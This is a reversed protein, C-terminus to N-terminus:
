VLSVRSKVVPRAQPAAFIRKIAQEADKVAAATGDRLGRLAQEETLAGLRACRAIAAVYSTNPADVIAANARDLAYQAANRANEEPTKGEPMSPRGAGPANTRSTEQPTKPTKDAM